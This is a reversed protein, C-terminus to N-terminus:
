IRNLTVQWSGAIDGQNLLMGAAIYTSEDMEVLCEFGACVGDETKFESLITEGVVSFRGAMSGLVSSDSTWTTPRSTDSWPSIDYRNVFEQVPETLVRMNVDLHWLDQGHEVATRMVVKSHKGEADIYVVEASWRAEEFICTHKMEKDVDLTLM